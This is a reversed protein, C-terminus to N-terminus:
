QGFDVGLALDGSEEVLFGQGVLLRPETGAEVADIDGGLLGKFLVHRHLELEWPGLGGIAAWTM